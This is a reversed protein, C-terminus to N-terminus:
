HSNRSNKHVPIIISRQFQLHYIQLSIRKFNHQVFIYQNITITIPFSNELPIKNVVNLACYTCYFSLLKVLSSNIVFSTKVMPCISFSIKNPTMNYESKTVTKHNRKYKFKSFTYYIYYNYCIKINFLLDLPM